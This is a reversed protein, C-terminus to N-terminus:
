LYHLLKVICDLYDLHMNTKQLILMKLINIGYKVAYDEKRLNVNELSMCM